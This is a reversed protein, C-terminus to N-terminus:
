LPHLAHTITGQRKWVIAPRQRRSEQLWIGAFPRSCRSTILGGDVVLASGPQLVIRAEPPLSLTCRVVLTAKKRVIIDGTWDLSRNLEVTRGGPIVWTKQPDYSCWDPILFRRTGKDQHFSMVMKGIQCPTYASQYANYDMVNNSVEECGPPENFNWCGAHKPTDDCGDDLNWTHSLGLVHGLEHNFLGAAEWPTFRLTDGNPLLTIKRSLHYQGVLKAHNSKGVGDHSAKYTPSFLSDPHHEILFINIVTDKQIGYRQFQREDYVNNVVGPGRAKKNMYFLEDDYHFYIGDDGPVYPRGTLVYRFPIPLAPIQNGQPLWPKQNAALRNNAQAVLDQVWRRGEAESFNYRGRSDNIIHVNIRIRYVLSEPLLSTDPAYHEPVSCPFFTRRLHFSDRQVDDAVAWRGKGPQALGPLAFGVFLICGLWRHM